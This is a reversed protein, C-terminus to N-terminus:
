RSVNNCALTLLFFHPFITSVYVVMANTVIPMRLFSFRRPKRMRWGCVFLSVLGIPHAPTHDWPLDLRSKTQTSSFQEPFIDDLWESFGSLYFGRTNSSPTSTLQISEEKEGSTVASCCHQLGCMSPAPQHDPPIISRGCKYAVVFRSAAAIIRSHETQKALRSEGLHVCTGIHHSRFRNTTRHYTILICNSQISSVHARRTNEHSLVSCQALM